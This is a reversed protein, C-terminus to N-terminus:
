QCNPPLPHPPTQPSPLIQLLLGNLATGLILIISSVESALQLVDTYFQRRTQGQHSFTQDKTMLLQFKAALSEVGVVSSIGIAALKADIQQLYCLLIVFMAYLFAGARTFAEEKMKSQLLWECVESDHPPFGLVSIFM